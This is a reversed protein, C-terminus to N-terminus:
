YLYLFDVIPHKDDVIQQWMKLVETYELEELEEVSTDYAYSLITLKANQISKIKKNELENGLNILNVDLNIQDTQIEKKEKNIENKYQNIHDNLQLLLLNFVKYPIKFNKNYQM